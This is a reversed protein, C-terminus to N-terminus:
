KVLGAALFADAAGRVLRAFENIKELVAQGELAEGPGFAIDAEIDCALKTVPGQDTLLTIGIALDKGKELFMFGHREAEIKMNQGDLVVDPPPILVLKNQIAATLVPMEHKDKNDLENLVKFLNNWPEVKRLVSVAAKHHDQKVTAFRAEFNKADEPLPFYEKQTGARGQTWAQNWLIDLAARLNHIADASVAALRAPVPPCDNVFFALQGDKRKEDFQSAATYPRKELFEHKSREFDAILEKARDLKAGGSSAWDRM